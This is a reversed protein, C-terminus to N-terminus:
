ESVPSDGFVANLGLQAERAAGLKQASILASSLIADVDDANLAAARAFSNVAQVYDGDRYYAQALYHHARAETM